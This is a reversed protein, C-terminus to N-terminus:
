LTVWEVETWSMSEPDVGAQSPHDREDPVSFTDDDDGDISGITIEARPDVSGMTTEAQPDVSGMSTEAQCTATPTTEEELSAGGEPLLDEELGAGGVPVVSHEAFADAESRPNGQIDAAISDNTEELQRLPTRPLFHWAIVFKMFLKAMRLIIITGVISLLLFVVVQIEPVIKTFLVSLGWSAWIMPPVLICFFALLWLCPKIRIRKGGKLTPQLM